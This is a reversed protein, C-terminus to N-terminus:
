QLRSARDRLGPHYQCQNASRNTLYDILWNHFCHPLPFDALKSLLSHHRVADFAKSFDLSILHVYNHEQLLTTIHWFMCILASTTSGTPRFAFQDSFLHRFELESLVPYLISRVLMKEMIRSLVPTISIPRYDSCSSPQNVKPIPSICSSKWQV